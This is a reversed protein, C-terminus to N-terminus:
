QSIRMGEISTGATLYKTCEKFVLTLLGTFVTVVGSTTVHAIGMPLFTTSTFFFINYGSSLLGAALLWWVHRSEPRLSGRKIVPAAVLLLEAAYRWLNLEFPAITGGLSQACAAGVSSSVVVVLLSVCGVITGALSSQKLLKKSEKDDEQTDEFLKRVESSTDLSTM